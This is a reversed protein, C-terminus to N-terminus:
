PLLATPHLLSDTARYPSTADSRERRCLVARPTDDSGRAWWPLGRPTDVDLVSHIEWGDIEGREVAAMWTRSGHIRALAIGLMGLGGMAAGMAALCTLTSGWAGLTSWFSAVGIMALWLGCVLVARLAGIHSPRRQVGAMALLPVMFCVGYALGLPLGLHAGGILGVLPYVSVAEALHGQLLGILAATAPATLAGAVPFAILSWSLVDATDPSARLVLKATVASLALACAAVLVMADGIIGLPFVHLGLTM